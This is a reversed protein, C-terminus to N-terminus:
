VGAASAANPTPTKTKLSSGPVESHRISQIECKTGADWFRKELGANDADKESLAIWIMLSRCSDINERSTVITGHLFLLSEDAIYFRCILISVRVEPSLGAREPPKWADM